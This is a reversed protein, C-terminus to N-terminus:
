LQVRRSNDLPHSDDDLKKLIPDLPKIETELIKDRINFVHQERRNADIRMSDEKSKM